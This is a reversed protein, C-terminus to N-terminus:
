NKGSNKNPNYPVNALISVGLYKKVDESSTFKNNTAYKFIVFFASAITSILVSAIISNKLNPTSQSSPLNGERVVTIRDIGMLETLNKQSVKCISDAIEKSAKPSTTRVTIEIIRTDPPTNISVGSKVEAYSYKNDLDEVVKSLVYRDKIIEAFDNILANSVSLEVTNIVETKRDKVYLKATSDYMPTGLVTSYLIAIILPIIYFVAILRWYKRAVAIIDGIKFSKELHILNKTNNNELM